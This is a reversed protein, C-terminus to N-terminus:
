VRVSHKGLRDDRWWRVHMAICYVFTITMVCAGSRKISYRLADIWLWNEHEWMVWQWHALMGVTILWLAFFTVIAPLRYRIRRTEVKPLSGIWRLFGWLMMPLLVVSSGHQLLAYWRIPRPEVDIAVNRLVPFRVVGWRGLHTFSDWVIHTAAGLTVLLAVLLVASVSFDIGRELWPELRKSMSVPLLAALPQKLVGHFVYYSLMSIPLCHTFLGVRSHTVTYDLLMPFFNPFDPVMTGIALATFSVRWRCLWAIPIAAAMHTPTFPM